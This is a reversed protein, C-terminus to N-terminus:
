GVKINEVESIVESEVKRFTIRFGYDFYKWELGYRRFLRRLKVGCQVLSKSYTKDESIDLCKHIIEPTEYFILRVEGSVILNFEDNWFGNENIEREKIYSENIWYRKLSDYYRDKLVILYDDYVNYRNFIEITECSLDIIEQSSLM